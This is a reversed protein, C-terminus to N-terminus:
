FYGHLWFTLSKFLIKYDVCIYMIFIAYKHRITPLQQEGGLDLDQVM